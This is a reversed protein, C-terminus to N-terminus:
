LGVILEGGLKAQDAGENEHVGDDACDPGPLSHRISYLLWMLM